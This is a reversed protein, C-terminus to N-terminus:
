QRGELPAKFSYHDLVAGRAQPPLGHLPHARAPLGEFGFTFRVLQAPSLAEKEELFSEEAVKLVESYMKEPLIM